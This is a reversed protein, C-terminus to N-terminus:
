VRLGLACSTSEMEPRAPEPVLDGFLSLAFGSCGLQM